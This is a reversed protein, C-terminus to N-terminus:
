EFRNKDAVESVPTPYKGDFCAACLDEPKPGGLAEALRYVNEISLYGLTDAGIIDAIEDISYRCAILNERSDIDTGYYCPNRFPPASIRVHVEKAGADRILKVIQASTTGRVISDDILVIRRGRIVDRIPNLKLHVLREREEQTPAIFTRGIYKNKLLGIGYPVGSELSYGIAADLGSDPVGIVLDAEVPHEQALFRGAQIRCEHVSAGQIRSDARAFYIYEFVCLKPRCIGIHTRISRIEGHKSGDVVMIEGPELERVFRAGVADLACSESAFVVEGDPTKGYCLPRFGHPDRVALLKAPSMLVLSYAGELKPMTKEVAEEISPTHIRAQTILYSIVETDSTTQFICGQEELEQRLEYSNTLNGNHTLAMQGKHHKIVLPQANDRSDSGSTSYRVHGVAMEGDGLKALGEDDFVQSVLGMDKYYVINRDRNVAIGAAEQGRHQLAILGFYVQRALPKTEPSWIGFVGCEEHIENM